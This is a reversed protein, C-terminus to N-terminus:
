AAEKVRNRARRRPAKSEGVEDRAKLEIERVRNISTGLAEAIEELTYGAKRQALVWARRAPARRCRELWSEATKPPRPLPPLGADRYRRQRPQPRM